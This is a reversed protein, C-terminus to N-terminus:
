QAFEIPQLDNGPHQHDRGEALFFKHVFGAVDLQVTNKDLRDTGGIQVVADRRQKAAAAGFGTTAGHALRFFRRSMPVQQACTVPETIVAAGRQRPIARNPM